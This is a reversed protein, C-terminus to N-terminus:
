RKFLLYNHKFVRLFDAVGDYATTLNRLLRKHGTNRAGVVGLERRQYGTVQHLSILQGVFVVDFRPRVLLIAGQQGGAFDVRHVYRSGIHQM